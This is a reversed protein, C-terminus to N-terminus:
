PNGKLRAIELSAEELAKARHERLAADMQKWAGPAYVQRFVRAAETIRAEAREARAEEEKAHRRESAIIGRLQDVGMRSCEEAHLKREARLEDALLMGAHDETESLQGRLHEIEDETMRESM